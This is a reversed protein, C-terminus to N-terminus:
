LDSFISEYITSALISVLWDNQELSLCSEGHVAVIRTENFKSNQGQSLHFIRTFILSTKYGLKKKSIEQLKLLKSLRTKLVQCQRVKLSSIGLSYATKKRKQFINAREGSTDFPVEMELLPRQHELIVRTSMFWPYRLTLHPPSTQTTLRAKELKGPEALPMLYSRM